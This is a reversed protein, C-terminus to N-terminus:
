ERLDGEFLPSYPAMVNVADQYEHDMFIIGGAEFRSAPVPGVYPPLYYVPQFLSTGDEQRDEYFSQGVAIRSEKSTVVSGRPAGETKVFPQVLVEEEGDADPLYQMIQELASAPVPLVRAHLPQITDQQIEDV